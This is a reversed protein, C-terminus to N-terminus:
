QLDVLEALFQINCNFQQWGQKTKRLILFLNQDLNRDAPRNNKGSTETIKSAREVCSPITNGFLGHVCDKVGKETGWSFSDWLDDSHLGYLHFPDILGV